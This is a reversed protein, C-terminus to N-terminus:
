WVSPRVLKTGPVKAPFQSRALHTPRIQKVFNPKCSLLAQSQREHPNVIGVIARLEHRVLRIPEKLDSDNSVVVFAEADKRFADALLYTALNVDSGKEETKIVRVFAPPPAANPMFTQSTLFHGFHVTLGPVTRLAGIYAQQRRPAGSDGPRASIRATFYRIRKIENQPLLISCLKGPDLWKFQSGKLCGYYMNFGDIYVNTIM